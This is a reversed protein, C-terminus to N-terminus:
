DDHDSHKGKGPHNDHHNSFKDKYKRTKWLGKPVDHDHANKWGDELSVSMQWHGDRYRFYFGNDFYYESWGVVIYARIGSDYIMDHDQHKHRYGHAPAHPPPGAKHHRAESKHHDPDSDYRVSTSGVCATLLVMMLAVFVIKINM